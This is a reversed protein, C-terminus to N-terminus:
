AREMRLHEILYFSSRVFLLSSSFPKVLSAVEACLRYVGWKTIRDREISSNDAFNSGPM